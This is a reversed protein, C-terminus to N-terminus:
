AIAELFGLLRRRRLSLSYNRLVLERALGAEGSRLADRIAHAAAATDGYPAVL